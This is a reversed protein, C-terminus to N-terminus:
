EPDIGVPIAGRLDRSSRGVEITGEETVPIWDERVPDYGLFSRPDLSVEVDRREGPALRTTSFGALERPPRGAVESAVYLQVVEKGPRDGVNEVTVSVSVPKGVPIRDPAELPGYEFETYSLGHGFPYYPEVERADFGRYGVLLGEDYEVRGDVGPYSAEDFGYDDERGFTVPLRGGPEEGTLVAALAIGDDQGPYWTELLAPVSDLWPMEVAGSTNLVVVLEGAVDAVAEILADQSGPLSLSPRDTGETAVDRAVLVTADAREAAAVAAEISPEDDPEDAEGEDFFRVGRIPSVGREFSVEGALHERLGALPSVAHAPTVESSGGGGLAPRDANPGIVALTEIGPDIPLVGENKLLVSGEIAVRRAVEPHDVTDVEEANRSESGFREMTELVRRVMTDIRGEGVAGVDVAARLPEGYRGGEEVDPMSLPLESPAVGFQSEADLAYGPMELDLGATASDVPDGTAWWDSVVYGSFDWEDRLVETLLRRNDSMSEGNVGNYACMVSGVGAERVAAEFGRLYCERLAREGIRADITTREAEQSNAVYHKATAIAGESQIGEVVSVATRSTLWPDESYYEFNRGGHPVRILNLGPALLGDQGKARTERGLAEGQERALDGDWTAALAISAPFATAEGARVGLPGDVLRLPPIGREDNPPLYGTSVGEPDRAGHLLRLKEALTLSEVLTDPDGRPGDRFATM